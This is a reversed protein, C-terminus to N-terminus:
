RKCVVIDKFNTNLYPTACKIMAIFIFEANMPLEGEVLLTVNWLPSAGSKKYEWKGNQTFAKQYTLLEHENNNKLYFNKARLSIILLPKDNSRYATFGIYIPLLSELSFKEKNQNLDNYGNTKLLYKVNTKIDKTFPFIEKINQTYPIEFYEKNHPLNLSTADVYMKFTNHPTFNPEEIIPICSTLFVNLLICILYNLNKSPIIM